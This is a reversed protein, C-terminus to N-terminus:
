PSHNASFILIGYNDLSVLLEPAGRGALDVLELGAVGLASRDVPWNYWTARWLEEIREGNRGHLSIVLNQCDIDRREEVSAVAIVDRGTM